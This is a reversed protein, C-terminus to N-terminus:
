VTDASTTQHASTPRRQILSFVGGLVGVFLAAIGWLTGSFHNGLLADLSLSGPGTFAFSLAAIGLVLTYEYGGNQAFFGNKIHVTLAV